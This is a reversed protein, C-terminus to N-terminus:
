LHEKSFKLETQSMNEQCAKNLWVIETRVDTGRGASMRAQTSYKQWDPLMDNYIENDYGSLVVMGRVSILKKLLEVHDDDSM